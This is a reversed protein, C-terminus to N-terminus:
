LSAITISQYGVAELSQRADIVLQLVLSGTAQAAEFSQFRLHYPAPEFTETSDTTQAWTPSWSVWLCLALLFNKM